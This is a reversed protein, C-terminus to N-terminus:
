RCCRGVSETGHHVPPRTLSRHRSPSSLASTSVNADSWPRRSLYNSPCLRGPLSPPTTSRRLKPSSLSSFSLFFSLFLSRAVTLRVFLSLPPFTNCIVRLLPSRPTSPRSCGPWVCYYLALFPWSSGPGCGPKGPLSPILRLPLHCSSPHLSPHIWYLRAVLTQTCKTPPGGFTDGPVPLWTASLPCLGSSASPPDSPAVPLWQCGNPLWQWAGALGRATWQISIVSWQCGAPAASPRSNSTSTVRRCTETPYM